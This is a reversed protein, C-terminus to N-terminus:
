LCRLMWHRVLGWGWDWRWARIHIVDELLHRESGGLRVRVLDDSENGTM